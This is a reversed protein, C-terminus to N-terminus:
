HGRRVISTSAAQAQTAPDSCAIGVAEALEVLQYKGIQVEEGMEVLYEPKEAPNFFEEGKSGDIKVYLIKPLKM